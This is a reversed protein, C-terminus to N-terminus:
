FHRILISLPTCFMYITTIFADFTKRSIKLM